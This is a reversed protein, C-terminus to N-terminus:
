QLATAEHNRLLGLRFLRYHDDLRFLVRGYLRWFVAGTRGYIFKVVRRM